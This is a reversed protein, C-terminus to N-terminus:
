LAAAAAKAEASPVLGVKVPFVCGGDVGPCVELSEISCEGEVSTRGGVATEGEEVASPGAEEGGLRRVERDPPPTARSGLPSLASTGHCTSSVRSSHSTTMATLTTFLPGPIDFGRVRNESGALMGLYKKTKCIKDRKMKARHQAYPQYPKWLTKIEAKDL